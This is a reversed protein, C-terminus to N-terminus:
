ADSDSDPAYAVGKVPRTPEEVCSSGPYVEPSWRPEARALGALAALSM